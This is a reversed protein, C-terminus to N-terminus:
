ATIRPLETEIREEFARLAESLTAYLYWTRFPSISADKELAAVVWDRGDPHQPWFALGAYGLRKLNVCLKTLDPM